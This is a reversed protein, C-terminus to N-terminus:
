QAALRRCAQAQRRNEGRRRPDAGQRRRPGHAAEVKAAGTVVQGAKGAMALADLAARELLRETAEVLDGAARLERKFGRAFINRKVAEAVAERTGAIWLGRGPLKRKVDPVVEGGPRARLPDTREVPMVQRTLACMRESGPAVSTTGRDLESDQAMALM